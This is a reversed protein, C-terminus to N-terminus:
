LYERFRVVSIPINTRGKHQVNKSIKNTYIKYWMKACVFIVISDNKHKLEFYMLMKSLSFRKYMFALRIPSNETNKM